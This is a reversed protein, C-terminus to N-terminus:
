PLGLPSPRNRILSTSRYLAVERVPRLVMGKPGKPEELEWCLRVGSSTRYFSWAEKRIVDHMRTVRQVSIFNNGVLGSGRKPPDLEFSLVIDWSGMFSKLEQGLRPRNLVTM